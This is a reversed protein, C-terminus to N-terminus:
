YPWNDPDCIDGHKQPYRPDFIIAVTNPTFDLMYAASSYGKIQTKIDRASLWMNTPRGNNPVIVSDGDLAVCDSRWNHGPYGIGLSTSNLRGRIKIHLADKYDGNITIVANAESVSASFLLGLVMAMSGFLKAVKSAKLKMM